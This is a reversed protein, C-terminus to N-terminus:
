EDCLLINGREEEEFINWLIHVFDFTGWYQHEEYTYWWDGADVYKTVWHRLKDKKESLEELDKSVSNRYPNTSSQFSVVVVVATHREGALFKLKTDRIISRFKKGVLIAITDVIVPKNPLDPPPQSDDNSNRSFLSPFTKLM